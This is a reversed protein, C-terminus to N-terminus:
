RTILRLIGIVFILLVCLKAIEYTQSNHKGTNYGSFVSGFAAAISSAVTSVNHVIILLNILVFIVIIAIFINRWNLRM